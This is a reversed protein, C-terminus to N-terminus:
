RKSNIFRHHYHCILKPDVGVSLLVEKYEQEPFESEVIPVIMSVKSAKHTRLYQIKERPLELEKYREWIEQVSQRKLQDYRADKTQVVRLYHAALEAIVQPSRDGEQVRQLAAKQFFGQKERVEDIPDM